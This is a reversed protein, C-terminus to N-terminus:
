WLGPVVPPPCGTGGARCLQQRVDRDLETAATELENRRDVLEALSQGYRRELRQLQAIREQLDSLAQPHSDLEQGYDQLAIAVGEVEGQAHQLRQLLPQLTPDVTVLAQM